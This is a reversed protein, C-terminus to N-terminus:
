DRAARNTLRGRCRRRYSLPTTGTWRRFARHFPAKSAFGTRIAINSIVEDTNGLLHQATERRVEDLLEEFTIGERALARSVKRPHMQLQRAVKPLTVGTTGLQTTVLKRVQTSLSENPPLAALTGDAAVRLVSHLRPNQNRLPADLFRAPFGIGAFPAQFHLRLPGLAERYPALDAPEPHRFWADTQELMGEPWAFVHNRILSAIAFDEAARPFAIQSEFRALARDGAIELSLQHADTNLRLYRAGAQLAERPTAASAMLYDFLGADGTTMAESAKLGLANSDLVQEAHRLLSHVYSVYVRQEPDLESLQALLSEPVKPSRRLVALFPGLLRASYCLECTAPRSASVAPFTRPTVNETASSLENM